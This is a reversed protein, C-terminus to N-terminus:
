GARVAEELLSLAEHVAAHRVEERSGALALTRDVPRPGFVSVCVTGVPRGPSGGAPGAIGTIAVGWTCGSLRVIGAAMERATPESVAGHRDLTEPRVSLLDLKAQNDYAIVGGWFCTSAGPISTVVHGLGGGTCSEAVALTEGRDALLRLLRAAADLGPQTM